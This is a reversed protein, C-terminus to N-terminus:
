ASPPPAAEADDAAEADVVASTRPPCLAHPFMSRAGTAPSDRASGRVGVEHRRARRRGRRFRAVDRGQEHGRSFRL